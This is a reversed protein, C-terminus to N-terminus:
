YEKSLRLGNILDKFHPFLAQNFYNYANTIEEIDLSHIRAIDGWHERNYPSDILLCPIGNLNLDIFNSISDDIFVDVRGKIKAAKSSSYVQYIPVIPLNHNKLFRKTWAKPHIRKTCYLTPEFNPRHIIPLNLWFEKSQKLVRQVNRTIEIDEKPKGFRDLYPDMFACITDDIDLGVRLRM